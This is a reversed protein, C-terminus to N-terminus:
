PKTFSDSEDFLRSEQLKRLYEISGVDSYRDLNEIVPLDRILAETEDPTWQYAAVFGLSCAAALVGLWALLAAGMRLSRRWRPNRRVGSGCRVDLASLTRATFERSVSPHPLSDLLDLTRTYADAARRAEPSTVLLREIREVDASDLEGDLYAILDAQDQENLPSPEIM